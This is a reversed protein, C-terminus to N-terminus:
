VPRVIAERQARAPSEPTLEFASGVGANFDVTFIPFAQERIARQIEETERGPDFTAPDIFIAIPHIGRQRLAALALLWRPDADPSIVVPTRNRDFRRVEDILVDAISERGSSQMVALEGLIRHYQRDGTDAQTISRTGSSGIFGVARKRDLGIRTTSAAIAAVVDESCDLWAEAFDFRDARGLLVSRDARLNAAGSFDAIVWLESTPDLDFEKVMLRGTRATISWSIKNLPDGAVYDRVTSVSPTAMIARREIERRGTADAFPLRLAPLEFHPPYVIVEGPVRVRQQRQFVGLPDGARLELPGVPFAGRRVCISRTSWATSGKRKLSTVNGGDHGPIRALDRVEIWLKGIQSTSRLSIADTLVDGVQLRPPEVSRQVSVGSLSLRAWLGTVALLVLLGMALNSLLSWDAAEGGIAFGAILVILGIGRSTM